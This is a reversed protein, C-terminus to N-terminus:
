PELTFRILEHGNRCLLFGQGGHGPSTLFRYDDTYIVIKM